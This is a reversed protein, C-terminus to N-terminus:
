LTLRLIRVPAGPECAPARSARVILAQSQSLVRNLSSDQDDAPTAIMRGAEDLRLTARLFEQRAGGTPLAAGAYAPETRDAGALPDGNLARILPKLFLEGCVTASVPNGPLGLVTMPGIHGYILPKGPKMNVRWFDLKM